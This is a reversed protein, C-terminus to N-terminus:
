KEILTVGQCSPCQYAKHDPQSPHSIRPMLLHCHPCKVKIRLVWGQIKYFLNVLFQRIKILIKM